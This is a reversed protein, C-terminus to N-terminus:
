QYIKHLVRHMLLPADLDLEDDQVRKCRHQIQFFPYQHRMHVAVLLRAAVVVMTLMMGAMVVVVVAVETPLVM